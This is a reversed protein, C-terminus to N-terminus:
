RAINRKVSIASQRVPKVNDDTYMATSVHAAGWCSVTTAVGYATADQGHIKQVVRCCMEHLASITRIALDTEDFEEKQTCAFACEPVHM